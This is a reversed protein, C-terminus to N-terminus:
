RPTLPSTPPSPPLTGHRPHPCDTSACGGAGGGGMRIRKLEVSLSLSLCYVQSKFQQKNCVCLSLPPM